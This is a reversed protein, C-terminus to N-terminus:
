SVYAYELAAVVQDVHRVPMEPYIPLSLVERAAAESVPFDGAQYGLDAHAKQLHVPIPYHLGCPIGEASLLRQLGDRDRSRIAYVHYVHRRDAAEVPTTLVTSGALLSSYRRAHTRRAETWAELHRLKVRLIAGQIADMRYNFGKLLHHYRQEQGWDRLMRMTKAQDDDDTVVMGGEGCAGLNKGPYFSFCGSLGISGARHGKYQAGHAQCADEIVPIGHREAIAKIADMDAMQGYLHVPVIAKTRPTIKAEVEAPDMTLTVPEVDVFVPRAGTYCIASVTAVFTFPVTIIEDDPGVGAALLALHLASTGTNVAIAHKVNCYDAFEQEFHAVEDGLVYQGSALVGLVAADIEGKISQYQAKIDLFPIM